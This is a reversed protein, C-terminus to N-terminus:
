WQCMSRPAGSMCMRGRSTASCSKSTIPVRPKCARKWGAMGVKGQLKKETHTLKKAPKSVLATNPVCANASM